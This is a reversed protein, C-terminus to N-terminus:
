GCIYNTQFEDYLDNKLGISHTGIESCAFNMLFFLKLLVLPTMPNQPLLRLNAIGLGGIGRPLGVSGASYAPDASVRRFVSVNPSKQELLM